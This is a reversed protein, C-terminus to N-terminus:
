ALYGALPTIQPALTPCSPAIHAPAFLHGKACGPQVPCRGQTTLGLSQGPQLCLPPNQRNPAALRQKASLAAQRPQRGIVLNQGICGGQDKQPQLFVPLGAKGGIKRSPLWFAPRACLLREKVLAALGMRGQVWRHGKLIQAIRHHPQRRAIRFQRGRGARQHM